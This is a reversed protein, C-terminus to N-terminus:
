ELKLLLWFSFTWVPMWLATAMIKGLLDPVISILHILMGGVFLWVLLLGLWLSFDKPYKRFAIIIFKVIKTLKRM